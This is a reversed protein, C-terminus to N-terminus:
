KEERFYERLYVLIVSLLLGAILGVATVLWLDFESEAVVPDLATVSFINQESQSDAAARTEVVSAVATALKVAQEQSRDNFIVAINQASYQKTQFRNTFRAINDIQYGVGATEYVDAVVSPSKFWSLLHQGYIEASKLDYYGGYQYDPTAPRNVLAIDFNIVAKYSVPRYIAFLLAVVGVLVTVILIFWQSQKLIRAHSRLEMPM